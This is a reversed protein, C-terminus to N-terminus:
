LIQTFDYWLELQALGDFDMAFGRGTDVSTTMCLEDAHDQMTLFIQKWEKSFEMHESLFTICGSMDEIDIYLNAPLAKALKEATEMDALFQQLKLPNMLQCVPSESCLADHVIGDFILEAEELSSPQIARIEKLSELWKKATNKAETYYFRQLKM